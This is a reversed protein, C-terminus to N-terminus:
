KDFGLLPPEIRTATKLDWATTTWRAVPSVDGADRGDAEWRMMYDGWWETTVTVLAHHWIMERFLAELKTRWAEFSDLGQNSSWAVAIARGRYPPPYADTAPVFFLDRTLPPWVDEKPLRAIAGDNRARIVDAPVHRYVGEHIFGAITNVHGM